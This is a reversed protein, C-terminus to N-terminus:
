DNEEDHALRVVELALKGLRGNVGMKRIAPNRVNPM